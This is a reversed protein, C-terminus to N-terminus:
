WQFVDTVTDLLYELAGIAYTQGQLSVSACVRVCLFCGLFARGLEFFQGEREQRQEQAMVACM